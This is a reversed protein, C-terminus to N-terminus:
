PVGKPGWKNTLRKKACGNPHPKRALGNQHTTKQDWGSCFATPRAFHLPAIAM